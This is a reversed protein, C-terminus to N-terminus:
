LATQLTEPVQVRSLLQTLGESSDVDWSSDMVNAVFQFIAATLAPARATCFACAFVLLPARRSAGAAQSSVFLAVRALSAGLIAHCRLPLNDKEQTLGYTQLRCPLSQAQLALRARQLRSRVLCPGTTGWMSRPAQLSSLLRAKSSGTHLSALRLLFTARSQHDENCVRHRAPGTYQASTYGLACASCRWLTHQQAHLGSDGGPRAQHDTPRRQSM